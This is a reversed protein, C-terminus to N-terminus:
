IKSLEPFALRGTASTVSPLSTFTNSGSFAGAQNTFYKPCYYPAVENKNMETVSKEAESGCDKIRTRTRKIKILTATLLSLMGSLVKSMGASKLSVM